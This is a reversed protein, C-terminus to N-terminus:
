EPKLNLSQIVKGWFQNEKAIFKAFQEPNDTFTEAGIDNLKKLMAPSNMIKVIETNLQNVIAPPTKAPLFLAYWENTVVNPYGSEAITPVDALAPPRKSGTTAIARIAGSKVHPITATPSNIFVQFRGGLFDTLAPGGGKYPVSLVDIGAEKKLFEMTLHGSSLGGPQGYALVGPNAKAYAIFEPFTKVPISPHVTMLGPMIGLMALPILDKMVDFPINKSVYPNIVLSSIGLGITYGDPTAKAVENNGITQNGGPKNEVIVTQGLSKSLEVALNRALFDATAGPALPVIIKIPRSPYPDAAHAFSILLSQAAFLLAIFTKM